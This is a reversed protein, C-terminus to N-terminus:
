ENGCTRRLLFKYNTLFKSVKIMETITRNELDVRQFAKKLIKCDIKQEKTFENADLVLKIYTAKLNKLLKQMLQISIQSKPKIQNIKYYNQDNQLETYIFSTLMSTPIDKLLGPSTLRSLGVYVGNANVEDMNLVLKM